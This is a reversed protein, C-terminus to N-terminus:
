VPLLLFLVTRYPSDTSNWFTDNINLTDIKSPCCVLLTILINLIRIFVIFIHLWVFTCCVVSAWCARLRWHNNTVERHDTTKVAKKGHYRHPLTKSVKPSIQTNKAFNSYRRRNYARRCGFRFRFRRTFYEVALFVIKIKSLIKHTRPEVKLWKRKGVSTFNYLVGLDKRRALIFFIIRFIRQSNKFKQSVVKM